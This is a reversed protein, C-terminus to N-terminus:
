DDGRQNNDLLTLFRHPAIVPYVIGPQDDGDPYVRLFQGDLIVEAIHCRDARGSPLAIDHSPIALLGPMQAGQTRDILELLTRALEGSVVHRPWARAEGIAVTPLADIDLARRTPKPTGADQVPWSPAASAASLLFRWQHSFGAEDYHLSYIPATTGYVELGLLESLIKMTTRARTSVATSCGLLRLATVGIKPLVENDAIGRFFASVPATEADLVWDGIRLLGDSTAHGILDLTKPTPVIDGVAYFLQGLLVELASRGDAQLHDGLLAQLRSVEADPHSTVISIRPRILLRRARTADIIM